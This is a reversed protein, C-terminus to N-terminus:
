ASIAATTTFNFASSNLEQVTKNLLRIASVVDDHADNVAQRKGCLYNNAYIAKRLAELAVGITGVQGGIQMAHLSTIAFADNCFKLMGELRHVRKEVLGKRIDRPNNTLTQAVAAFQHLNDALTNLISAHNM